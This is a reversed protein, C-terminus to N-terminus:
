KLVPLKLVPQYFVIDYEMVFVYVVQRVARRVLLTDIDPERQLCILHGHVAIEIEHNHDGSVSIILHEGPFEFGQLDGGDEERPM